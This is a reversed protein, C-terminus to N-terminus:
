PISVIHFFPVAPVMASPAVTGTVGTPLTPVNAASQGTTTAMRVGGQGINGTVGAGLAWNMLSWNNANNQISVPRVTGDGPQFAFWYIGPTFQYNTGLPLM